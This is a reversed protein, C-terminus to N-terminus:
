DAPAPRFNGYTKTPLSSHSRAVAQAGLSAWNTTAAGGSAQKDGRAVPLAGRARAGGMSRCKLSGGPSDYVARCHCELNLDSQREASSNADQDDDAPRALPKHEEEGPPGRGCSTLCHGCYLEQAESIPEGNSEIPGAPQQQQQRQQQRHQNVQKEVSWPKAQQQHRHKDSPSCTAAQALSLLFLPVAVIAAPALATKNGPATASRAPLPFGIRM